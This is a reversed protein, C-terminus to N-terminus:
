LFWAAHRRIPVTSFKSDLSLGSWYNKSTDSVLLRLSHHSLTTRMLVPLHQFSELILFQRPKDLRIISPVCRCRSTAGNGLRKESRNGKQKAARVECQGMRVSQSSSPEFCCRDYLGLQQELRTRRVTYCIIHWDQQHRSDQRGKAFRWGRGLLLRRQPSDCSVFM